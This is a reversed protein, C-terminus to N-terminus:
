TYSIARHRRPRFSQTYSFACSSAALSFALAALFYSTTGTIWGALRHPLRTAKRWRYHGDERFAFFGCKLVGACMGACLSSISSPIPRHIHTTSQASVLCAPNPPPGPCPGMCAIGTSCAHFAALGSDLLHQSHQSRSFTRSDRVLSRARPPPQRASTPFIHLRPTRPTRRGNGNGNGRM